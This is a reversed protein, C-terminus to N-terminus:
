EEFYQVQYVQIELQDFRWASDPLGAKQCLHGLFLEPAALQQWVQPLFTAGAGNSAKLIVGDIDPRLKQLLDDADNYTLVEPETLVSLDLHLEAEEGATVPPFRHDHFAANVAHRRIGDVISEQASLSGICGRLQGQKKLTVFVGCKEQLAADDLARENVPNSVPLDLREQITQRALQILVQGQEDTLM